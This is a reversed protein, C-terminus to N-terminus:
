RACASAHPRASRRPVAVCSVAGLKDAKSTPTHLALPTAHTRSAARLQPIPRAPSNNRTPAKQSEAHRPVSRRAWATSLRKRPMRTVVANNTNLANEIRQATQSGVHNRRARTPPSMRTSPRLVQTTLSVPDRLSQAKTSVQLCGHKTDEAQPGSRGDVEGHPPPVGSAWWVDEDVCGDGVDNHAM